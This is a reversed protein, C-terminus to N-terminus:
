DRGVSQSLFQTPLLVVVVDSAKGGLESRGAGAVTWYFASTVSMILSIIVVATKFCWALAPWAACKGVYVGLFMRTRTRTPPPPTQAEDKEKISIKM